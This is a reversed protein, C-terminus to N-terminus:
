VPTTRTGINLDWEISCAACRAVWRGLSADKGTKTPGGCEPCAVHHLSWYCYGLMGVASGVFGVVFIKGLISYDNLHFALAAVLCVVSVLWAKLFFRQFSKDFSPHALNQM